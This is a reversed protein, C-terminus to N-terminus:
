HPNSKEKNQLPSMLFLFYIANIVFTKLNIEDSHQSYHKAYLTACTGCVLMGSNVRFIGLFAVMTLHTLAVARLDSVKRFLIKM